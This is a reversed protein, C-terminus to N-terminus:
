EILRNGNLSSMPSGMFSNLSCRNTRYQEQVHSKTEAQNKGPKNKFSYGATQQAHTRRQRKMRRRIEVLKDGLKKIREYEHLIVFDTLCRM